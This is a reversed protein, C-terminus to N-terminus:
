RLRVSHHLIAYETSYHNMVRYYSTFNSYIHLDVGAPLRAHLLAQLLQVPQDLVAVEQEDEDACELVLRAECLLIADVDRREDGDRQLVSELVVCLSDARVTPAFLM